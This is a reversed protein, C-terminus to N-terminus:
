TTPKADTGKGRRAAIENFTAGDGDLTAKLGTFEQWRIVAVDVFQPSLEMAYVRRRTGEAAIIATGSGSFPEFALGGERTHFLLPRRFLETPKQTPHVGDQEGQQDIEWVNRSNAPPKEKPSKGKVWGYFAPEFQWM